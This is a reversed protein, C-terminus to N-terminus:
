VSQASDWWERVNDKKHALQCSRVQSGMAVVVVVVLVVNDASLESGSVESYASEVWLVEDAGWWRVPRSVLLLRAGGGRFAVGGNYGFDWLWGRRGSRRSMAVVAVRSRERSAVDIVGPRRFPM